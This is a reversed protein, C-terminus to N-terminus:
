VFGEFPMKVRGCKSCTANPNSVLSGDWERFSVTKDAKVFRGCKPCVPIFTAKELDGYVVRRFNEYTAEIAMPWRCGREMVILGRTDAGRAHTGTCTSQLV